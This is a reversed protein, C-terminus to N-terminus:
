LLSFQYPFGLSAHALPRCISWHIHLYVSSFFCSDYAAQTESSRFHQPAQSVVQPCYALSMVGGIAQLLSAHFSSARSSTGQFSSLPGDDILRVHSVTEFAVSAFNHSLTSRMYISKGPVPWHRFSMISASTM